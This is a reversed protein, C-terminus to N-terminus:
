DIIGDHLKKTGLELMGIIANLPTRIEHSMTALFTSKAVNARESEKRAARLSEEMEIRSTIDIWGGIVGNVRGEADL